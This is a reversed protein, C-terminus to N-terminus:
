VKTLTYTTGGLRVKIDSGDSWIDGNVPSTPATGSPINLSAKATTAAGLSLFATATVATGIGTNGTGLYNNADVVYIGWKNTATFTAITDVYIGYMNTVACTSLSNNGFEVAVGKATTLTGSSTSGFGFINRCLTLNSIAMASGTAYEYSNTNVELGTYGGTGATSKAHNWIVRNYGGTSTNNTGFNLINYICGLSTNTSGSPFGATASFQAVGYNTGATLSQGREFTALYSRVYGSPAIVRLQDSAAANAEGIQVSPTGLFSVNRLTGGATATGITCVNATTAWDIAFWEALADSTWTNYVRSAQAATSNRFQTVNATTGVISHNGSWLISGLKCTANSSTGIHFTLCAATLSSSTGHRIYMSDNFTIGANLGTIRIGGGVGVGPVTLWHTGDITNGGLAIKSFLVSNTTNLDQDFPNGAPVGTLGSGDGVFSTANVVNFTVTDSTNLDQNFINGTLYGIGAHDGWGFATDANAGQAASAAGILALQAADDAAALVARGAATNPLFQAFAM